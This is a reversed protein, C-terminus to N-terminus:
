SGPLVLEQKTGEESCNRLNVHLPDPKSRRAFISPTLRTLGGVDAHAAESQTLARSEATGYAFGIVGAEAAPPRTRGFDAAFTWLLERKREAGLATSHRGHSLLGCSPFAFRPGLGKV